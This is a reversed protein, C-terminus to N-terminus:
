FGIKNKKKEYVPLTMIKNLCFQKIEDVYDFLGAFGSKAMRITDPGEKVEWVTNDALKLDKEETGGSSAGAIAMVAMLEGRGTGQKDGKFTFYDEFYKYADNIYDDLTYKRFHSDYFVNLERQDSFNIDQFHLDKISQEFSYKKM